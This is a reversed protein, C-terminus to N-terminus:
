NIRKIHTIIFSKNTNIKIKEINSIEAGLKKIIIKIKDINVVKSIKTLKLLSTYETNSVFDEKNSEIIVIVMNGGKKMTELVKKLCAEIDVYELILALLFLDVDQFYLEEEDIDINHINLSPLKSMYKKRVINLYESNIDIAHVTHTIKNDFHEFGNGTACGLVAFIQPTYQELINKTIKSLIQLQGVDKDSMHNEYDDCPIELWPNKKM